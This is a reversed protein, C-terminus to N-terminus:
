HASDPRTGGNQPEKHRFGSPFIDRLTQVGLAVMLM